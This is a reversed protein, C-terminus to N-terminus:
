TLTNKSFLHNELEIFGITADTVSGLHTKLTTDYGFIDGGRETIFHQKIQTGDAHTVTIASVLSKSSEIWRESRKGVNPEPQAHM